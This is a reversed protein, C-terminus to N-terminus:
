FSAVLRPTVVPCDPNSRLGGPHHVFQFDQVFSLHKTIAAKYYSELIFEGRYDFSAAPETSFRVWTIAVGISDQTRKHRTGQLVTGAGLHREFPNVRGDATGLQLFGSVSREAQEPKSNRWLTQELVSYFGQSGASAKGDFGSLNGGLRWYGGSVHGRNETQGLSWTRGPEIILLSGAAATDFVGLGIANNTTPRLFANFGLKPEPYSPFAVITPSYGMSSNLFDNATQVSDFETNADIKGAKVRVKDSLLRQEIWAEYLTTRPGGDINSYTQAAGIYDEGFNDQHNRMRILGASGNLGWLKKGDVPVGFDFSYRGFGPGSDAADISKSWDYIMVGQFSIGHENLDHLGQKATTTLNLLNPSRSILNQALVPNPLALIVLAVLSTFRSHGIQM